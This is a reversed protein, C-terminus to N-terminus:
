EKCGDKMGKFFLAASCAGADKVGISREGYNKARGFKAVYQATEEAGRDAAVAGAELAEVDSGAQKMAEVGPIIADMMTKDGVGAKSITQLEKLGAEFIAAVSADAPANGMGMIFTGWLPGASGGQVNTAAWGIDEFLESVSDFPQGAKEKMLKAIKEMTIGHDGDGIVSDIKSLDAANEHLLEATKIIMDAWQQKTLAM